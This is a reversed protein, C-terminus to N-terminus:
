AYVGSSRLLSVINQVRPRINKKKKKWPTAADVTALGAIPPVPSVATSLAMKRTARERLPTVV